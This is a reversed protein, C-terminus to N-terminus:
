ASNVDGLDVYGREIAHMLADFAERAEEYMERHHRLEDIESKDPADGRDKAAIEFAAQLYRGRLRAVSLALPLVSDRTIEPILPHIIERNAVAIAQEIDRKFRLLDIDSVAM